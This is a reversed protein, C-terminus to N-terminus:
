AMDAWDTGTTEPIQVSVAYGKLALRHALAYAAAQGTFNADNDGFVVVSKCLEPPKWKALKGADIASWVPLGFRKSAAYATEIGEAIGMLESVPALRVASGEPVCGPMMARPNNMDAKGSEGLFTRHINAPKGEADRVLAILAPRKVGDPAPCQEVFRLDPCDIPCGRGTLYWGALDDPEISRGAKWLRNLLEKRKEDDMAPKVQDAQVNGLVKDVESAATAFDWGKVRQLLQMGTGAGCQNCIYSGNGNKNDFRFRDQGGCLPCPAHNGTLHEREIGMQLLIGRWKGRAADLTKM